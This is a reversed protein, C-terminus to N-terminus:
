TTSQAKNQENQYKYKDNWLSYWSGDLSCKWAGRASSVWSSRPPRGVLVLSGGLHFRECRGWPWEWSQKCGTWWICLQRLRLRKWLQFTLRLFLLVKIQSQHIISPIFWSVQWKKVLCIRNRCLHWIQHVISNCLSGIEFTSESHYYHNKVGLTIM